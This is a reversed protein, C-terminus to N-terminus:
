HIAVSVVRQQEQGAAVKEAPVAKLVEGSVSGDDHMDITVALQRDKAVFSNASKAVLAHRAEGHIAAYRVGAVTFLAISSGDALEYSGTYKGFEQTSMAQPSEPLVIAPQNGTITVTNGGPASQASATLAAFGLVSAVILTKM